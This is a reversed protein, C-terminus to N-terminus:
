WWYRNHSIFMYQEVISMKKDSVFWYDVQSWLPQLVKRQCKIVANSKIPSNFFHNIKSCLPCLQGVTEPAHLAAELDVDKVALITISSDPFWHAVSVNSHYFAHSLSYQSSSLPLIQLDRTTSPKSASSVEESSVLLGFVPSHCGFDFFLIRKDEFMIMSPVSCFKNSETSM